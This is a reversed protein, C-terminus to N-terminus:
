ASIHLAAPGRLVWNTGWDVSEVNWAPLEELLRQLWIQVELRALNLGLCSHMGFGFGMHQVPERRIDLVDPNEWRAPDRNAAGQLCMIVDGDKVPVGAIQHGGDRVFRWGVHVITNWRHIEEIAQPILSPDERVLALQDPHQQLALMTHAMLKATTENGAFVLQTNSAVIEQETMEDAVPSAVMTSILDSGPNKRRPALENRIYDNLDKTAQKGNAILEQGRPSLDTSGEPIGGMADSWASFQRYDADPIGLMKAIVITPIGRTMASVADVTEGSRVRELFSELQSDIVETILERQAEVTPRQFDRSWVGRVQDHRPQDMAEMTLGGFLGVFFDVDSAFKKANGFIRACDRYGTVLYQQLGEHWVVPGAERIERLAPYPDIVFAPDQFDVETTPVDTHQTSIETM